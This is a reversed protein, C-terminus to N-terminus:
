IVKAGGEEFYIKNNEMKERVKKNKRVGFKSLDSVNDNKCIFTSINSKSEPKSSSSNNNTIDRGVRSDCESTRNV